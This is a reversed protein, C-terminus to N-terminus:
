TVAWGTRGSRAASASVQSRRRSAASALKSPRPHHFVRAMDLFASRKLIAKATAAAARQTTPIMSVLDSWEVAPTKEMTQAM